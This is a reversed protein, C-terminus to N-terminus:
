PQCASARKHTTCFDWGQASAAVFREAIDKNVRGKLWDGRAIV